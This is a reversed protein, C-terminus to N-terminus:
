ISDANMLAFPSTIVLLFPLKLRYNARFHHVRRGIGGYAVLLGIRLKANLDTRLREPHISISSPTCVGLLGESPSGSLNGAM